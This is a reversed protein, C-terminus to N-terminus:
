ILSTQSPHLTRPDLFPSTLPAHSQPAGFTILARLIHFCRPLHLLVLLLLLPLLLIHHSLVPILLLVTKRIQCYFTSTSPLDLPRASPIPDEKESSRPRDKPLLAHLALRTGQVPGTALSPHQSAQNISVCMNCYPGPPPHHVTVTRYQRM